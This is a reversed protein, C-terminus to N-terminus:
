FFTYAFEAIVCLSRCPWVFSLDVLEDAASWAAAMERATDGRGSM